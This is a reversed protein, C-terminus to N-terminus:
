RHAVFLAFSRPAAVRRLLAVRSDHRRPRRADRVGPTDVADRLLRDPVPHPAARALVSREARVKEARGKETRVKETRVKLIAAASVALGVLVAASIASSRWTM